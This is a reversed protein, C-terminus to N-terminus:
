QSPSAYTMPHPGRRPNLAVSLVPQLRVWVREQADDWAGRLKVLWLADCAIEIEDNNLVM